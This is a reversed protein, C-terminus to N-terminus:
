RWAVKGKEDFAFTTRFKEAVDADIITDPAELLSFYGFEGSARSAPEVGTSSSAADPGPRGPELNSPATASHTPVPVSKVSNGGSARRSSMKLWSPVPVSWTGERVSAVQSDFASAPPPLTTGPPYTHSTPSTSIPQADMAGEKSLPVAVPVFSSDRKSIHTFEDSSDNSENTTGTKDQAPRWLSSLRHLSSSRSPEIGPSTVARAKSTSPLLAVPRSVTTDVIPPPTGSQEIAGRYDRVADRIRELALPVNQFYAFFYSDLTHNEARDAVKIEISESFDM